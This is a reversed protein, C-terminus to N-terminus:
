LASHSSSCVSMALPGFCSAPLAGANHVLVHVPRPGGTRPSLQAAFDEVSSLSELNLPLCEVSAGPSRSQIGQAALKCATMNRCALITHAGAVSALTHAVALGIGRSAGTVVATRGRLCGRSVDEVWTLDAAAPALSAHSGALMVAAMAVCAAAVAECRRHALM